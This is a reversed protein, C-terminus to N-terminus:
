RRVDAPGDSLRLGGALQAEVGGALDTARHLDLRRPSEVALRSGYGQRSVVVVELDHGVAEPTPSASTPDLAQGDADAVGSM